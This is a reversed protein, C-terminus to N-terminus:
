RWSLGRGESSLESKKHVFHSERNGEFGNTERSIVVMESHPLLMRANHRATLKPVTRSKGRKQIAENSGNVLRTKEAELLFAHVWKDEPEGNDNRGSWSGQRRPGDCECGLWKWAKGDMRYTVALMIKKVSILNWMRMSLVKWFSRMEKSYTPVIEM